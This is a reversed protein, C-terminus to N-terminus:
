FYIAGHRMYSFCLSPKVQACGSGRLTTGCGRFTTGLNCFGIISSQQRLYLIRPHTEKKKEKHYGISVTHKLVHTLARASERWICMHSGAQANVTKDCYKSNLRQCNHDRASRYYSSAMCNLGLASRYYSSAMCNLGIAYMCLCSPPKATELFEAAPLFYLWM